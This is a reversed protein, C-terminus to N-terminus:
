HRNRVVTRLAHWAVAYVGLAVGLATGADQVFARLAVERGEDGDLAGWSGAAVTVALVAGLVANRPWRALVRDDDPIPRLPNRRRWRWLWVLLVVGGVVDSALNLRSQWGTGFADCLYDWALHTAAGAVVSLVIWALVDAGRWVFRDVAPLVRPFLAALPNKFVVHFATFLVLGILPDLWLLSLPDHTLTLNYDGGIWMLSVFYPLDPAMAGFVLASSVFPSRTLPLIAAPHVFTFPM